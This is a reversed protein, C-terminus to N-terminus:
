QLSIRRITGACFYLNEKRLRCQVSSYIKVEETNVPIWIPSIDLSPQSIPHDVLSMDASEKYKRYANNPEIFLFLSLNQKNLIEVFKVDEACHYNYTGCVKVDFMLAKGM